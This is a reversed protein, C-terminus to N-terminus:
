LLSKFQQESLIEIGLEKAKDYKSGPEDGVVVYDTKKSVSGSTKGGREKILDEAESRSFEQLSGTLVLTKGSFLHDTRRVRKPAEPKVGADLLAEIEEINSKEAFYDAISVAMKEGIGQINLLDDRKLKFLKEISGAEEALIEATEEGVYRIGLAFIFKELPCKRSEDIARMLNEISKEKFGELQTLDDETLHYLDSLRSVFGKRVLQEVVKEGLHNIDMADKSAFYAVKRIRQEVCGKTNPCRVAVEGEEHVVPTGCIPCKSPMKWAHSHSPRKKHDVSVVKPIVDGGKEIVVTDGVRIDKREVEEQNHLTARSITSGALFVPELEAVPTLVGTRGVQVTIDLIKTAVQEPAFKYAVAWRPSKGTTGLLSHYKLTDVKVVIGDIDYPLTDREKEINHAFELIQAPSECSQRLHLAFVPLGHKKLYDHVDSQCGVPANDSDAIGYFVVSLGREAVERPDLLKLSGAAANRPNAWPEEGMEQKKKNQRQFEKHPMFVEGRIELQDPIHAGSLELPVGRITKVNATVDDGKKGDGRTLARKFVGKEYLVTMAVGDMKLEACFAVSKKELLKHVRAVFDELESESYTNTLSLMQIKHEHQKFGKTLAEGVRRTPSTERVWEPHETETKELKKYLQDYEYDSIKPRHWAYYHRDHERIEEILRLYEEKKM